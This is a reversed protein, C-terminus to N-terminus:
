GERRDPVDLVLAEHLSRALKAGVREPAHPLHGLPPAQDAGDPSETEEESDLQPRVAVRARGRPVLGSPDHVAAELPPQAERHARPVDERERRRQGYAAGLQVAGEPDHVLTERLDLGSSGSSDGPASQQSAWQVDVGMPRPSSVSVTGGLGTGNSPGRE